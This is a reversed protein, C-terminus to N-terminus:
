RPCPLSRGTIRGFYYQQTDRAIVRVGNPQQTGSAPTFSTPPEVVNITDPIDGYYGLTVLLERDGSRFTGTGVRTITFGNNAASTVAQNDAAIQVENVTQGNLLRSVDVAVLDAVRQLDRTNQAGFGIDIVLAAFGILTTLVLATLPLIAGRDEHRRNTRNSTTSM